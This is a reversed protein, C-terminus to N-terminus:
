YKSRGFVLGSLIEPHLFERPKQSKVPKRTKNLIEQRAMEKQKEEQEKRNEEEEKKREEELVDYPKAFELNVDNGLLKGGEVALGEENEIRNIYFENGSIILMDGINAVRSKRFYDEILEKIKPNDAYKSNVGQLEIKSINSVESVVRIDVEELLGVGIKGLVWEPLMLIDDHEGMEIDAILHRHENHSIEIIIYNNEESPEFNDYIKGLVTKPINITNCTYENTLVRM